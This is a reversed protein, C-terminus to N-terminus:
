RRWAIPRVFFQNSGVVAGAANHKLVLNPKRDPKFGWKRLLATCELYNNIGAGKATYHWEAIFVKVHTPMAPLSKICEYEVGECDMKVLSPHYEKLITKFAIAPVTEYVYARGRWADLRKSQVTKAAPTSLGDAFYRLLISKQTVDAVIGAKCAVLRGDNIAPKLNRKLNNFALKGPELAIVLKAGNELALNSFCGIHAGIDLVTAGQCNKLVAAYERRSERVVDIDYSGAVHQVNAM